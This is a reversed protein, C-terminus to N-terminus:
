ANGAELQALWGEELGWSARNGLTGATMGKPSTVAEGATWESGEERASVLHNPVTGDQHLCVGASAWQSWAALAANSLHTVCVM